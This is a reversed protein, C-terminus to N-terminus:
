CTFLKTAWQLDILRLFLIRYALIAVSILVYITYFIINYLLIYICILLTALYNKYTNFKFSILIYDVWANKLQEKQM